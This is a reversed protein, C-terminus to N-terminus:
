NQAQDKKQRADCEVYAVGAMIASGALLTLVLATLPIHQWLPLDAHMLQNLAFVMAVGVVLSVVAANRFWDATRHVM